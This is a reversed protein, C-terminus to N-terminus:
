RPWTASPSTSTSSSTRRASGTSPAAACRGARRRRQVATVLGPHRRAALAATAPDYDVGTVRRGGGLFRASGDGLGCGLDLLAGPGVRALVERYGAAHLALLSDPTKGEIPREGTLRM